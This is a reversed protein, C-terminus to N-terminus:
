VITLHSWVGLNYSPTVLRTTVPPPILSAVPPAGCQAPMNQIHVCVCVYVCVRVLCSSCWQLSGDPVSDWFTCNFLILSILYIEEFTHHLYTWSALSSIGNWQYSRQVCDWHFASLPLKVDTWINCVCVWGCVCVCIYIYIQIYVTYISYTYIYQIYISYIYQIYIYISYIYKIYVTYIYIYTHTYQMHSVSLWRIVYIMYSVPSSDTKYRYLVSQASSNSVDLSWHSVCHDCPRGLLISPVVPCIFAM